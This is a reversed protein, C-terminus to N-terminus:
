RSSSVTRVVCSSFAVTAFPGNSTIQPTSGVRISAVNPLVAEAWDGGWFGLGVQILRLPSSM